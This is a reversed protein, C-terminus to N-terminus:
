IFHGNNLRFLPTESNPMQIPYHESSFVYQESSFVSSESMQHHQHFQQNTVQQQNQYEFTSLQPEHQLTYQLDGLLQNSINSANQLGYTSQETPSSNLPAYSTCYMPSEQNPQIEISLTPSVTGSSSSPKLPRSPRCSRLKSVSSVFPTPASTQSLPSCLLSLLEGNRQLPSGQTKTVTTNFPLYHLNVTPPTARNISGQESDMSTEPFIPNNDDRLEASSPPSSRSAHHTSSLFEPYKNTADARSIIASPIDSELEGNGTPEITDSPINDYPVASALKKSIYGANIEEPSLAFIIQNPKTPNQEIKSDKIEVTNDGDISSGFSSIVTENEPHEHNLKLKFRKKETEFAICESYGENENTGDLVIISSNPAFRSGKKKRKTKSKFHQNISNSNRYKDNEPRMEAKNFNVILDKQRNYNIRGVDRRIKKNEQKLKKDKKKLKKKKETIKTNMEESAITLNEVNIGEVQNGDNSAPNDSNVCQELVNEPANPKTASVTGDMENLHSSSSHATESGLENSSQFNETIMTADLHEDTTVTYSTSIHLTEAHKDSSESSCKKRGFLDTADNIKESEQGVNTANYDNTESDKKSHINVNEDNLNLDLIQSCGKKKVFRLNRLNESANDKIESVTGCNYRVHKLKDVNTIRDDSEKRPIILHNKISSDKNMESINLIDTTLSNLVNLKINGINTNANISKEITVEKAIKEKTIFENDSKHKIQREKDDSDNIDEPIKEVIDSVKKSMDRMEGDEEESTITEFNDNFGGDGDDSDKYIEDLTSLETKNQFIEKKEHGKHSHNNKNKNLLNKVEKSEGKPTPQVCTPTVSSSETPSGLKSSKNSCLKARSNLEQTKLIERKELDRQLMKDKAREVSKNFNKKNSSQINKQTCPPVSSKLPDRHKERIHRHLATSRDFRADCQKCPYTNIFGNRSYSKCLSSPSFRKKKRVPKIENPNSFYESISSSNKNRQIDGCTKDKPNCSVNNVGNDNVSNILPSAIEPLVRYSATNEKPKASPKPSSYEKSLTKNADRHSLINNNKLPLSIRLSSNSNGECQLVDASTNKKTSKECLQFSTNESFEKGDSLFVGKDSLIGNDRAELHTKSNRCSQVCEKSTHQSKSKANGSEKLINAPNKIEKTTYKRITSVSSNNQRDSPDPNTPNSNQDSFEVENKIEECPLCIVDVETPANNLINEIFKPEDISSLMSSEWTSAKSMDYVSKNFVSSDFEENNQSSGNVGNLLEKLKDIEKDIEASKESKIFSMEKEDFEDASELFSEKADDFCKDNAVMKTVKSKSSLPGPKIRKASFSRKITTNKCNNDKKALIENTVIATCQPNESILNSPGLEDGDAHYINTMNSMKSSCLKESSSGISRPQVGRSSQTMAFTSLNLSKKRPISKKLLKTKSYSGQKSKSLKETGLYVSKHKPEFVDHVLVACKKMVKMSQLRRKDYFNRFKKPRFLDREDDERWPKYKPHETIHKVYKESFEAASLSDLSDVYNSDCTYQTSMPISPVPVINKSYKDTKKIVLTEFQPQSEIDPIVGINVPGIVNKEKVPDTSIVLSEVLSTNSCQDTTVDSIKTGNNDHMKRKSYPIQGDNSESRRKRNRKLVHIESSSTSSTAFVHLSFM